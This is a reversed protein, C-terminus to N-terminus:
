WLKDYKLEYFIIVGQNSKVNRETMLTLILLSDLVFHVCDLRLRLKWLYNKKELLKEKWNIQWSHFGYAVLRKRNEQRDIYVLMGHYCYVSWMLFKFIFIAASLESPILVTESERKWLCWLFRWFLEWLNLVVRVYQKTFWREYRFIEGIFRCFCRKSNM